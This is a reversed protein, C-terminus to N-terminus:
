FFDYHLCFTSVLIVVEHNYTEVLWGLKLKCALSM